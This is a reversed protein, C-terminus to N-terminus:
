TEVACRALVACRTRVVMLSSRQSVGSKMMLLYTLLGKIEQSDFAM